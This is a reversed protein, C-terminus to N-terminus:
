LNQNIRYLYRWYGNLELADLYNRPQLSPVICDQAVIILVTGKLVTKRSTCLCSM